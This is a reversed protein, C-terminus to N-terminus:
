ENCNKKLTPTKKLLGMSSYCIRQKWFLHSRNQTALWTSLTIILHHCNDYSKCSSNLKMLIPTLMRLIIYLPKLAHCFEMILSAGIKTNRFQDQPQFKRSMKKYLFIKDLKNWLDKTTCNDTSVMAFFKPWRHIFSRNFMRTYLSGTKMKMVSPKSKGSIHGM